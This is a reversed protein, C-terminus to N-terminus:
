LTFRCTPRPYAPLNFGDKVFSQRMLIRSLASACPTGQMLQKQWVGAQENTLVIHSTTRMPCGGGGGGMGWGGDTTDSMKILTRLYEQSVGAERRRYSSRGQPHMVSDSYWNFINPFLFAVHFFIIRGANKTLAIREFVVSYTRM